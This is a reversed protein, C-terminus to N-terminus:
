PNLLQTSSIPLENTKGYGPITRRLLQLPNSGISAFDNLELQFFLTTNASGAIAELKQVVTRAAWCGGNYEIGAITELPRSDKNSYNYRGVAYWQGSLPWQGALDVQDVAAEGTLPDRTYRYSASLVKGYEPQYRIGASFRVSQNDRYNYEWTGEAYTKPLVLGSIGAILNSFDNNRVTEGPISVRQPSFYYRQGILAKFREAGTEADLLRTTLAATLQNADNIRDLGSYRNEAFIQAINFDTLGSDFVPITSQDRYPIYVYYLRPELTQVYNRDLLSTDREFVLNGDLSFIPLSRDFSSEGNGRRDLTYKTMHMGLKTTLQYAPAVIPLSVQPYFMMRDGQDKTPHTFRSYQAQLALDTGLTNAKFGFLNVQPELFYPREIGQVTDFQLTQYRLVQINSQLWSAPSFALAVQQPLQAQSTNLLRSSMDQWYTDDSVKNYNVAASLGRGLNQNHLIQFAYRKRDQVEDNPLYEFKTSGTYNFDMYRVDAGLQFGRKDMYRPHFTVDYNPAVNWYYPLTLDFGNRSSFAYSPHLFGSMRRGNLSFTAQPAYFIPVDKFWVSAGKATALEADYDLHTEDTKLYWERDPAKCTSFTSNLLRFQNEGEFNIKEAHGYAESPRTPPATTPLGYGSAINLMMPAGSSNGTSIATTSAAVSANAVAIQQQEYLRNPVQRVIAYDADEAFGVQEAMKLRLHPTAIDAGAQLLRVKGEADVEDDLSRYTLRDAFLLADAKRLEVSGSADSTEDARGEIHDAVLFLPYADDKSLELQRPLGISYAPQKKRAQVNFKREVRLKVPKEDAVPTGAADAAALAGTSLGSFLCCVFLALPRRPFGPM